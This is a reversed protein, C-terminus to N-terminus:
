LGQGSLMLALFLRFTNIVLSVMSSGRADSELTCAGLIPWFILSKYLKILLIELIEDHFCTPCITPSNDSLKKFFFLYGAEEARIFHLLYFRIKTVLISQSARSQRHIHTVLILQGTFFLCDLSPGFPPELCIFIQRKMYYLLGQYSNTHIHNHTLTTHLKIKLYRYTM